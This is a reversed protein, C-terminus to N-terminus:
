ERLRLGSPAISPETSTLEVLFETRHAPFTHESVLVPRGDLDHTVRRCRLVPVGTLVGLLEAEEDTAAGARITQRASRLPGELLEYFPRAEVDDRSLGSALDSPCWVSVLAFPEGDALTLRRTALVEDVELEAAVEAPAPRFAFDLIRRDAQRGQERLQEEITGLRGLNQSLPATAVYWGAGQRSSVRGEERLDELARRVTVRSAKYRAGLDAESPLLGGAVFEGGEIRRRLSDAIQQYRHHRV